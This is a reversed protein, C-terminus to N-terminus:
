NLGGKLELKNLIQFRVSDQHDRIRLKYGDIEIEYAMLDNKDIDNEYFHKHERGHVKKIQEVLFKIEETNSEEM